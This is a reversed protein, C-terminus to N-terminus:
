VTGILSTIKMLEPLKVSRGPHGSGRNEENEARMRVRNGAPLYVYKV